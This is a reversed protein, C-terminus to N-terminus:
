QKPAPQAPAPPMVSPPASGPAPPTTTPNPPSGAAPQPTSSQPAPGPEPRQGPVPPSTPQGSQSPGPPAAGPGPAAAPEAKPFPVPSDSATQLYALIEAREKPSPVGAFAMITGKVYAKPNTIFANIDEYTWTGGMGKMGGSYAFGEHSGKPRGVVGYLEPGIKNGGGKEFSHCTQCKKVDSKGKDASASALLVPLPEAQAQGDGAPGSEQPVPEALEYGPVAPKRPTYLIGSGINLGMAFLCTALVGGAIKNGFLPDGGSLRDMWGRSGNASAREVSAM